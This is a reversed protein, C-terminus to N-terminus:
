EGINMEEDDSENKKNQIEKMKAQISMYMELLLTTSINLIVLTSLFYFFAFYGQYYESCGVSLSKSIININNIMTLCFCSVFGSGFDNFNINSYESPITPDDDFINKTIHGGTLFMTITTFIFYFSFLTSFLSYFLNKMNHITKSFTEFTNYKKFLLFIRIMRMCVFVKVINMLVTHAEEINTEIFMFTLLLLLLTVCNIIFFCFLVFENFILYKFPFHKVYIIFEFIFISCWIIQPILVFIFNKKTDPIEILLLMMIGFDIINIGIETYKYSFFRLFINSQRIAEIEEKTNKEKQNLLNYIDNKTFDSLEGKYGILKLIKIYDNKTLYFKKNLNFLIQNFTHSQEPALRIMKLDNKGESRKNSKKDNIKDSEEDKETEEEEEEEGLIIEENEEVTLDFISKHFEKYIEDIAKRASEKLSDFFKSYYLTKLLTFLIFYNIALYLLFFFFPFKNGDDFTDLMVDPFNCTSLLIFLSYVSLLPNGFYDKSKNGFLFYGVTGFFLMVCFILFTLVRTQYFIKLVVAWMERQSKILLIILIGRCFFNILPFYDLIISLIVDILCLLIFLFIIYQIVNYINVQKFIDIKKLKFHILKILVFSTLFVIEIYRYINGKIFIKSNLYVLDQPCENDTKNGRKNFTTRSYCFMPKEFFVLITYLFVLIVRIIRLIRYKKKINEKQTDYMYKNIKDDLELVVLQLRLNESLEYLDEDKGKIVKKM